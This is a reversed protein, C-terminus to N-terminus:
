AAMAVGATPRALVNFSRDEPEKPTYPIVGQETIRGLRYGHATLFSTIQACSSGFRNQASEEYEIVIAPRQGSSLLKEAGRLVAKEAGEVDIKMVDVRDIGKENVYRDITTCAVEFTEGSACYQDRFSTAGVNHPKAMHLTVPEESDSLAFQNIQVREKVPEVNESLFQFMAPAPEFSHVKCNLGSALLTYQGMNAGVDFFTMGPRLLDSIVKVTPPEYWGSRWIEHGCGGTDNWVVRMKMGNGLTANVRVLYGISGALHDFLQPPRRRLAIYPQAVAGLSLKTITPHKKALRVAIAGPHFHKM